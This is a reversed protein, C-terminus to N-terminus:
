AFFILCSSPAMACRLDWSSRTAACRTLAVAVTEAAAVGVGPVGSASIFDAGSLASTDFDVGVGVGDMM